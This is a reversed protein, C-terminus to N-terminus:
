MLAFTSVNSPTEGNKPVTPLGVTFILITHHIHLIEWGWSILLNATAATSHPLNNYHLLLVGTTLLKTEKASYDGQTEETEQYIAASITSILATFGVLLVGYVDFLFTAAV